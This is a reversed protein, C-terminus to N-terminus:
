SNWSFLIEDQTNMDAYKAYKSNTCLSVALQHALTLTDAIVQYPNSNSAFHFMDTTLQARSQIYFTKDSAIPGCLVLRVRTCRSFECVYKRPLKCSAEPCLAARINLNERANVNSDLFLWYHKVCSAAGYRCLLKFYIIFAFPRVSFTINRCKAIFKNDKNFYLYIYLAIEGYQRM